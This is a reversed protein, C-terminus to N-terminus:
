GPVQMKKVAEFALNLKAMREGAMSLFEDPV